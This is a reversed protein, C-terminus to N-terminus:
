RKVGAMIKAVRHIFDTCNIHLKHGKAIRTILATFWSFMGTLEDYYKVYINFDNSFM